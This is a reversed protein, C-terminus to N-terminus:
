SCSLQNPKPKYCIQFTTVNPRKLSQATILETFFLGESYKLM